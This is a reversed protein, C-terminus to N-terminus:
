RDLYAGCGRYTKGGVALEARQEFREGSMADSCPEAWTRLVVATGDAMLGGYGHTSSIGQTRAVDIKRQGYDLEAHLAPSDGGGIEVWWGPEQGVSRFVVGRAKAAEWPSVNETIECDRKEEGALALTAQEGKNWFENGQADAYRAGSASEAGPLSLERGSLSLEVNNGVSAASVLLEGCRWRRASAQPQAPPMAPATPQSSPTGSAAPTQGDRPACAAFLVATPLLAAISVLKM